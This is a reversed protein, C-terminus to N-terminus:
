FGVKQKKIENEECRRIEECKKYKIWVDLSAGVLSLMMWYTHLSGKNLRLATDVVSKFNKRM